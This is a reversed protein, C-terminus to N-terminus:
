RVPGYIQGSQDIYANNQYLSLVDTASLATAYIRVDSQYLQTNGYNTPRSGFVGVYLTNMSSLAGSYSRSELLVGDFYSKIIEGDFTNTLLHWQGDLIDISGFNGTRRTGAITFGSTFQGNYYISIEAKEGDFNLPIHWNGKPSKNSSKVWCSLTIATPTWGNVPCTIYYTYDEFYMSTTYKPVDSSYTFTKIHTGNNNFGSYDYEIASGLNMGSYITDATHPCWPTVKDSYELKIDDIIYTGISMGYFGYVNSSTMSYAQTTTTQYIYLKWDNDLQKVSIKPISLISAFRGYAADWSGSIVKVKVQCTITTDTPIELLTNQRPTVYTTGGSVIEIQLGKGGYGDVITGTNTLLAWDSLDNSFSSNKILNENGLGRRNLHYHLILGKSIEKIEKASLCNDYIRVDNLYCYGSTGTWATNAASNSRGGITLNTKNANVTINFTNLLEGNVYLRCKSGDYTACVHYWTNKNLTGCDGAMNCRFVGTTGNSSYGGVMFLYDSASSGNLTVQYFNSSSPISTYYVWYCVSWANSDISFNTAALVQGAFYYSGGLKGTSSQTIGTNNFNVNTLGQNHLDKTLPLWVQLGM